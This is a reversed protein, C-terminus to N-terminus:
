ILIYLSLKAGNALVIRVITVHSRTLTIYVVRTKVNYQASLHMAPEIWMNFTCEITCLIYLFVINIAMDYINVDTWSNTDIM